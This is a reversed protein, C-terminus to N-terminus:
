GIQRDKRPPRTTRGRGSAPARRAHRAGLDRRPRRRAHAVRHRGRARDAAAAFMLATQGRATDAANVDAGKGLLFRVAEVSGSAAATMLATAGDASRANPNAGADLLAKVVGASGNTAALLLPTLAGNRTTAEVRAGARILVEAAEVDDNYAAWHLATTGDGQPENVDAKAAILRRVADTDGRRVADALDSAM